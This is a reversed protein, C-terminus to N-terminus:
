RSVFPTPVVTGTLASGRVDISVAAGEEIDPPLFALAIGHGLVPSYNGSTM